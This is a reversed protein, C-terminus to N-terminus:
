AHGWLRCSVFHNPLPLKTAAIVHVELFSNAVGYRSLSAAELEFGHNDNAPYRVDEFKVDAGQEEQSQKRLSVEVSFYRLRM